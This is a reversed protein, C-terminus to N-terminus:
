KNKKEKLAKLLEEEAKSRLPKSDMTDSKESKKVSTKNEPRPEAGTNMAKGAKEAVKELRQALNNGADNMFQLEDFLAQAEDIEKQLKAALSDANNKLGSIATEAQQTVAILEAVSKELAQRNEKFVTLQRHLKIAYFIAGALLLSVIIDLLFAASM